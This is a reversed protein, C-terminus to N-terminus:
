MMTSVEGHPCLRDTFPLQAIEAEEATRVDLVYPTWGREFLARAEKATLRDFGNEGRGENKRVEKPAGAEKTNTKAQARCFGKYDILEKVSPAQPNKLLPIERFVMHMANYM